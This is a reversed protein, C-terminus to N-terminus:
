YGLKEYAELAQINHADAGPMHNSIYISPKKGRRLLAEVIQAQLAWNIYAAAIGSAPCISLALEEVPVLADGVPTCHDLVIDCVEFLRKGAPNNPELSKSYAVSTLAITHIGRKRAELAISVPLINIGSVSGIMLVDGPLLASKECIFEPLGAISDLYIRRKSAAQKRPRVPNEVTVNTIIPRVAMMGGSRGIAEYMLMHGTDLIHFAGDHVLSEAIVEASRNIAEKQTDEIIKLIDKMADFYKEQLM